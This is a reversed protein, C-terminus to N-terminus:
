NIIFIISFDVMIGIAINKSEIPKCSDAATHANNSIRMVPSLSAQNTIEKAIISIAHRRITENTEKRASPVVVMLIESIIAKIIEERM